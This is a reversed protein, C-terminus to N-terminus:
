LPSLRIQVQRGSTGFMTPCPYYRIRSRGKRVARHLPPPGSENSCAFGTGDAPAPKATPKPAVIPEPTATPKPVPTATPDPLATPEPTVTPKPVPTATPDPLAIPEPTVTPKPVPTATSDPTVTPVPTGTPDPTPTPVPTYTPNPTFTPQPTFSPEPTNLEITPPQDGLEPPEDTPLTSFMGPPATPSPAPEESEGGCAILALLTLMALGLLWCPITSTWSITGASEIDTSGLGEETPSQMEKWEKLRAADMLPSAKRM